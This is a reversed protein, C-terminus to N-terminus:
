SITEDPPEHYHDQQLFLDHYERKSLHQRLLSSCLGVLHEIEQSSMRGALTEALRSQGLLKLFTACSRRDLEGDLGFCITATDPTMAPTRPM